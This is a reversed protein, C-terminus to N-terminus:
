APCMPLPASSKGNTFTRGQNLESAGITVTRKLNGVSANYDLEMHFSLNDGPNWDGKLRGYLINGYDSGTIRWDDAYLNANFFNVIYGYLSFTEEYFSEQATASSAIGGLALSVILLVAPRSKM